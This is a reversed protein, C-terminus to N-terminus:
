SRNFLYLLQNSDIFEYFKRVTVWLHALYTVRPPTLPNQSIITSKKRLPIGAFRVPPKELNKSSLPNQDLGGQEDRGNGQGGSNLRILESYGRKNLLKM